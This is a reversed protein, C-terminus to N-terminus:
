APLLAIGFNEMKYIYLGDVQLYGDATIEPVPGEHICTVSAEVTILRNQPLIQGRYVWTHSDATLLAFRHSKMLDPWRKRALYKLLQIFSEIGLSGPCVPDQYFHAKFFWEEPDVTKSGRIYGLKAPGGQPLFIEIRDVMRIAKAPLVLGGNPHYNPDEPALPAVDVLEDLQNSKVEQPLPKYVQLDARRLGEQQALAESTFFGFYTSGAYLKQNPQWVEFDYHEIIM